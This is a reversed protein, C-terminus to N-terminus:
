EGNVLLRITDSEVLVDNGNPNDVHIVCRFTSNHEQTINQITLSFDAYNGFYPLTHLMLPSFGMIWLYSYHQSLAGRTYPCELTICEGIRATYFHLFEKSQVPFAPPNLIYPLIIAIQEVCTFKCM